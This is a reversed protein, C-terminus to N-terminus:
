RKCACAGSRGARTHCSEGRRAGSAPRNRTRFRAIRRYHRDAKGRLLLALSVKSLFFLCGGFMDSTWGETECVYIRESDSRLLPRLRAEIFTSEAIPGFSGAVLGVVFLSRCLSLLSEITSFIALALFSWSNLAKQFSTFPCSSSFTRRRLFSTLFWTVFFTDLRM